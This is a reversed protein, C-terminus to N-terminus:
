PITQPEKPTIEIVLPSMPPVSLQLHLLGSPKEVDAMAGVVNVEDEGMNLQNLALTVSREMPQDSLNFALLIGGKRSSLVHLHLMEDLGVFRGRVFWERWRAYTQMAQKYHAWRTMNDAQGDLGKRGGIGLHRVTSAYWWFALCADNDKEMTIHDYLPIECALNYYYLCIARGSLLDEIPNWMFEFGWNEDYSGPRFTPDTTQDFYIPLYRVFWPWVPDHAEVLIGPVRKKVERILGYVARVHGEPTSPVVHGHSEDYCPGRWDFEDFMIFRMGQAAIAAIRQVKEKQWEPSQTCVEWFGLPPSEQMELVRREPRTSWERPEAEYIEIEDIRVSGSISELVEVRVYRAVQPLFDFRRTGRISDGHHEAVCKWRPENDGVSQRGVLIRLKCPLRDGFVPTHESGLCVSSIQYENGLDIQAWSPEGASVWSASNGYWGDNLHRAQHIAYGPLTSSVSAVAEPLLALNRRGQTDTFPVPELLPPVLPREYAKQEQNRRLYWTNPFEDRYVRGITRFGLGLGFRADLERALESVPGLRETDWLTTGECVEWGPDLYLLDARIEHAKAAENLLADRTYHKQLEERNSHYWGIDFLENWNVPPDYAPSLGHGLENLLDRYKEYGVSWDGMVRLYYTRGLTAASWPALQQMCEPERYLAFSSGGFVLCPTPHSRWELMSYEINAQNYKAVLLSSQMESSTGTLVWAESRLRGAPSDALPPCVVAADNKWDVNRGKGERLDSLSWDRRSGDVQVRFPVAVVRLDGRADPRRTLGFRYDEIKLTEPTKNKVSIQEIFGDGVPRTWIDHLIELTGNDAIIRCRSGDFSILRGPLREVQRGAIKVEYLCEGRAFELGASDDIAIWVGEPNQKASFHLTKGATIDVAKPSEAPGALFTSVLTM